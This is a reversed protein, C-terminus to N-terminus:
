LLHLPVSSGGLLLWLALKRRSIHRLNRVSPIGIDLWKRTTHAKDIEKRTPASLCQMCYNSGSLLITSLLNILIHLGSNLRKIQACDGEMLLGKNKGHTVSSWITIILNITFVISAWAAFHLVGFRWGSFRRRYREIFGLKRSEEPTSKASESADFGCDDHSHATLAYSEGAENSPANHYKSRVQFRSQSWDVIAHLIHLAMTHHILSIRIFVPDPAKWSSIHTPISANNQLAVIIRASRSITVCCALLFYRPFPQPFFSRDGAL